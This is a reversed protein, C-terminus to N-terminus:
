RVPPCVKPHSLRKLGKNAGMSEVGGRGYDRAPRGRNQRTMDSKTWTVHGAGSAARRHDARQEKAVLKM